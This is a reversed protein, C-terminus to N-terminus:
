KIQGDTDYNHDKGLVKNKEWESAAKTNEETIGEQIGARVSNKISMNKENERDPSLGPINIGDVRAVKEILRYIDRPLSDEGYGTIASAGYEQYSKQCLQEYGRGYVDISRYMIVGSDPKMYGQVPKFVKQHRGLKISVDGITATSEVTDRENDLLQNPNYHFYDVLKQIINKDTVMGGPYKDPDHIIDCLLRHMEKNTDYIGRQGNEERESYERFTTKYSINQKSGDDLTIQGGSFNITFGERSLIIECQTAGFIAKSAVQKRTAELLTGATHYHVGDRGKLQQDVIKVTDM